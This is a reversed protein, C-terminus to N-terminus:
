RFPVEDFAKGQQDSVVQMDRRALDMRGQKEYLKARLARVETRERAGSITVIDRQANKQEAALYSTLDDIAAQTKNLGAYAQARCYLIDFATPTQNFADTAAVVARSWQKDALLASTLLKMSSFDKPVPDLTLAAAAGKYDKINYLAKAKDGILFHAKIRGGKEKYILALANDFVAVAERPRDLKLLEDGYCSAALFCNPYERTVDAYKQLATDDDVEQDAM